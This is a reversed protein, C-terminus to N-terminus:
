YACNRCGNGCCYGRKIHYLETFVLLGNEMTYHVGERPQDGISHAVVVKQDIETLCVNCLCDFKTSKLYDITEKTLVVKACGCAEIEYPRCDLPEGCKSCSKNTVKM